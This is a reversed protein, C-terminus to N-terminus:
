GIFVAYDRLREATGLTLDGHVVLEDVSSLRGLKDRTTVISAAEAATVGAHQELADADLANLNLLGGDDFARNRDPRGLNMELALAPDGAALSRYQARLERRAQAEQVGPLPPHWGVGRADDPGPNNPFVRQRHVFATWTGIGIAVLLVAVGIDDRPGPSNGAADQPASGVLVGGILALGAAAGAAAYLRAKLESDHVKSAVWLPPVCSALGGTVFPLAFFWFHSSKWWPTPRPTPVATPSM